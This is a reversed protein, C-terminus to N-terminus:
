RELLGSGDFDAVDGRQPNTMGVDFVGDAAGFLDDQAEVFRDGAVQRGILHGSAYADSRDRGPQFGSESMLLESERSFKQM